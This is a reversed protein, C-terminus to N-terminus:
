PDINIIKLAKDDVGTLLENILELEELGFINM